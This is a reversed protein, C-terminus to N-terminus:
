NILFHRRILYAPFFLKNAMLFYETQEPKEAYEVAKRYFADQSVARYLRRLKGNYRQEVSIAANICLSVHRLYMKYFLAGCGRGAQGPCALRNLLSFTKHVCAHKYNAKQRSLSDSADQRYYYMIENQVYVANSHALYELCFYIDEYFSWEEKFRIANGEIISRKYVKTGIAHLTNTPFLKLIIGRLDRAKWNGESIKPYHKERKRNERGATNQYGCLYMDVDESELAAAAKELYGPAICDDSDVFLIYEGKAREMGRNRASSVGRNRQHICSVNGHQRAYRDCLEGSGDESGDDVLIIEANGYAQSLISGMCDALYAEAQYVPVIVSILKGADGM